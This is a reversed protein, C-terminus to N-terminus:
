KQVEPKPRRLGPRMVTEYLEDVDVDVATFDEGDLSVRSGTQVVAITRNGELELNSALVEATGFEPKKIYAMLASIRANSIRSDALELRSGDKAAAGTGSSDIQLNKAKVQSAEGVSIAKDDVNVFRTGDLSIQSTSVDVADGGGATGIMEFLGGVLQGTCFDCDFGDSLTDIIELNTALFDASIINLGDEGKHHMISTDSIDVSNRYFNSGGMLKWTGLQVGRTDRVQVHRWHSRETAAFAVFGLWSEAGQQALLRVPQKETGAFYVNGRVILAADEAFRLTTGPGARLAYGEPLAMVDDILWEGPAISVVAGSEDLSLFEARALLSEIGESPIPNRTVLSAQRVVPLKFGRGQSKGLVQLNAAALNGPLAIRVAASIDNRERGDLQVPLGSLELREGDIELSEVLVPYPVAPLLELWTTTGEVVRYARVANRYYRSPKEPMGVPYNEALLETDSLSGLFAARAEVEQLPYKPLFIFERHLVSLLRDEEAQLSAILEGSAVRSVLDDLVEKYRAFIQPDQLMQQVVAEKASIYVEGSERQKLSADYAIPEMKLTIPNMYFRQNHWRIAHFAGMLESVALYAGMTEADFIESAAVKGEGFARLMGMAYDAQGSLIPSEVVASSQFVDAATNRFDDYIGGFGNGSPGDFSSFVRNEDYRVIPGDRRSQSELLEKSFHEEIAMIGIDEGNLTMNVYLYRPTLVGYDKLVHFYLNEAHYGRVAPSQVSFRRMGLYTEGKRIHVRFSWKNGRIHDTFDGKLRIKAPTTGDRERIKAKVFSDDDQVIRGRVLAQDRQEYIARMDRFKVDIVLEAIEVDSNIGDLMNPAADLIAGVLGPGTDFAAHGKEWPWLLIPGYEARLYTSSFLKPNSFGEILYACVLLVPVGFVLLVSARPIRFGRTTPKGGKLQM